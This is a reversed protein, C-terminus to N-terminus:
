LHSDSDVKKTGFIFYKKSETKTLLGLKGQTNLFINNTNYVIRVMVIVIAILVIVYFYINSNYFM